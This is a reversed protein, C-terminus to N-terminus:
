INITFNYPILFVQSHILIIKINSSWFTHWTRWHYLSSKRAQSRYSSAPSPGNSLLMRLQVCVIFLFPGAGVITGTLLNEQSINKTFNDLNTQFKSIIVSINQDLYLISLRRYLYCLLEAVEEPAGNIRIHQHESPRGLWILEFRIKLLRIQDQYTGLAVPNNAYLFSDRSM